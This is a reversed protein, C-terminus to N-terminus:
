DPRTLGKDINFERYIAEFEKKQARQLQQTKGKDQGKVRIPQQYKRGTKGLASRAKKCAPDDSDRDCNEYFVEAQRTFTPSLFSTLPWLGKKKNFIYEEEGPSLNAYNEFATEYSYAMFGAYFRSIYALDDPNFKLTGLSVTDLSRAFSEWPGGFTNDRGGELAHKTFSDPSFKGRIPADYQNLNLQMDVIPRIPSPVFKTWLTNGSGAPLFELSDLSVSQLNDFTETWTQHGLAGRAMQAGTAQLFATAGFGYSIRTPGLVPLNYVANRTWLKGSSQEVLNREEEDDGSTMFALMYHMAGLGTLLMAARGKHESELFADLARVNGIAAARSFMFLKGMPGGFLGANEFNTLDKAKSAALRANVGRRRQTRYYSLRTLMEASTNINEFLTDVQKLRKKAEAPLKRNLDKVVDVKRLEKGFSQAIVTPGGQTYFEQLDNLIEQNESTEMLKEMKKAASGSGDLKYSIWKATDRYASVRVADRLFARTEGSDRDNDLQLLYSTHIVERFTNYLTFPIHYWTQQKSMQRTIYGTANYIGAFNGGSEEFAKIYALHSGKTAQAGEDNLRGVLAKGNRNYSVVRNIDPERMVDAFAPDNINYEQLASGDTLSSSYTESDVADRYNPSFNAAAMNLLIADATDRGAFESLLQKSRQNIAATVSQRTPDLGADTKDRDASNNTQYIGFTGEFNRERFFYDLGSSDTLATGELPVFNKLKFARRAFRDNKTEVGWAKRVKDMYRLQNQYNTSVEDYLATLEPNVHMAQLVLAANADTMGSPAYKARDAANITNAPDNALAIFGTRDEASLSGREFAGRKSNFEAQMAPVPQAGQMAWMLPNAEEAMRALLNKDESHQQETPSSDTIDRIKASTEEAKSHLARLSLTTAKGNPNPSDITLEDYLTQARSAQTNSQAHVHMKDSLNGQELLKAFMTGEVKGELDAKVNDIFGPTKRLVRDFRNEITRSLSKSSEFYKKAREYLSNKDDLFKQGRNRSDGEFQADGKVGKVVDEVFSTAIQTESLEPRKKDTSIKVYTKKGDANITVVENPDPQGRFLRSQVMTPTQAPYFYNVVDVDSILDSFQKPNAARVKAALTRVRADILRNASDSFEPSDLNEMVYQVVDAIANTDLSLSNDSAVGLKELFADPMDKAFGPKSLTSFLSKMADVGVRDVAKQDLKYRQDVAPIDKREFSIGQRAAKGVAIFDINGADVTPINELGATRQTTNDRLSETEAVGRLYDDFLQDSNPGPGANGQWADFWKRLFAKLDGFYKDVISGDAQDAAEIRAALRQALYEAFSDLYIAENTSDSLLDTSISPGSRQWLADFSQGLDPRGLDRVLQPKTKAIWLKWDNILAKRTAASAEGYTVSMIHHGVEHRMARLANLASSDDIARLLPEAIAIFGKNDKSAFFGETVGDDVGLVVHDIPKLNLSELVANAYSKLTSVKSALAPDAEAVGTLGGANAADTSERLTTFEPDEAVQTVVRAEQRKVKVREAVDSGLDKSVAEFEVDDAVPEPSTTDSVGNNVAGPAPAVVNGSLSRRGLSDNRRSGAQKNARNLLKRAEDKFKNLRPGTIEGSELKELWIKGRIIQNDALDYRDVADGGLVARMKTALEDLDLDKSKVETETGVSVDPEQKKLKVKLKIGSREAIADNAQELKEINNSLTAIESDFLEQQRPNKAQVRKSYLQSITDQDEAISAENKRLVDLEKQLSEAEAKADPNETAELALQNVRDSLTESIPVTDDAQITGDENEQGAQADLEAIRAQADERRAAARTNADDETLSSVKAEASDLGAEAKAISEPTKAIDLDNIAQEVANEADQREDIASKKSLSSDETKSKTKKLDERAKKLEATRDKGAAMEKNLKILAARLAKENPLTEEAVSGDSFTRDEVDPEAEVVAADTDLVIDLSRTIDALNNIDTILGKVISTDKPDTKQLEETAELVLEQLADAHMEVDTREGQAILEEAATIADNPSQASAMAEYAERAEPKRDESRLKPKAPAKPANGEGEGGLSSEDIVPNGDVDVDPEADVDKETKGTLAAIPGGAVLGTSFGVVANIKAELVDEPSLETTFAGKPSSSALGQGVNELAEQFGEGVAGTAFQGVRSQFLRSRNAISGAATFGPVASLSGALIATMVRTAAQRDTDTANSDTGGGVLSSSVGASLALATKSLGTTVALGKAVAAGPALSGAMAAGFDQLGDKDTFINKSVKLGMAGLSLHEPHDEALSARKITSATVLANGLSGIDTGTGLEKNAKNQGSRFLFEFADSLGPIEPLTKNIDALAGMTGAIATNAAKSVLDLGTDESALNAVLDPDALYDKYRPKAQGNDAAYKDAFQEAMARARLATKYEESEAGDEGKLAKSALGDLNHLLVSDYAGDDRLAALEEPSGYLKKSQDGLLTYANLEMAEAAQAQKAAKAEQVLRQNATLGATTPSEGGVGIQKNIGKLQKALDSLTRQEAM